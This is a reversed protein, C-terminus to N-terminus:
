DTIENCHRLLTYEGRTLSAFICPLYLFVQKLFAGVDELFEGVRTRESTEFSVDGRLTVKTM